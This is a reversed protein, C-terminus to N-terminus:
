ELSSQQKSEVNSGLAADIETSYIHTFIKLFSERQEDESADDALPSKVGLKKAIRQLGAPGKPGIYSFDRGNFAVRGAPDIVVVQNVASVGYRRYTASDPRTEGADIATLHPWDHEDLFENLEERAVGATHIGFFVVDRKEYKKELRKWLPITKICPLCWNGWFHLVVVKGRCDALKHTEGDNWAAVELPPAEAGNALREPREEKADEAGLLQNRVMALCVVACLWSWVILSRKM